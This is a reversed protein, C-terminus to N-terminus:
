YGTSRPSSTRAPPDDETWPAASAQTFLPAGGVQEVDVEFCEGNCTFVQVHLYAPGKEHAGAGAAEGCAPGARAKKLSDKKRGEGRGADQAKM